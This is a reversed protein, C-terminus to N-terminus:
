FLMKNNIFCDRIYSESEEISFCIGFLIDLRAMAIQERIVPQPNHLVMPIKVDRFDKGVQGCVRRFEQGWVMYSRVLVRLGASSLYLVDTLDFIAGRAVTKDTLIELVKVLGHAFIDEFENANTHEIRRPPRIIIFESGDTDTYAQVVDGRYNKDIATKKIVSQINKGDNSYTFIDSARKATILGLGGIEDIRRDKEDNICKSIDFGDGPSEINIVIREAISGVMEMKVSINVNVNINGKCGHEFANISLESIVHLVKYVIKEDWNFEEIISKTLLPLYDNELKYRDFLSLSVQFSPQQKSLYGLSLLDGQSQREFIDQTTRKRQMGKQIARVLSPFGDHDFLAACHFNSLSEPLQCDVLKVPIFYIDGERKEEWVRLAYKIEAQLFGSKDIAHQSLCALFFDAENIVQHIRNGWIEGPLLDRQDMWPSFGEALLDEYLRSVRERDDRAYCLFILINHPIPM